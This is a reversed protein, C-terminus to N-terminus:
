TTSRLDEDPLMSVLDVFDNSMNNYHGAIGARDGRRSAFPAFMQISAFVDFNVFSPNDDSISFGSFLQTRRDRNGQEQWLIQYLYFAISKPKKTRTSEIGEGPITTWDLPDTSSFSKTSGGAGVYLYRRNWLTEDAPAAAHDSAKHATDKDTDTATTTTATKNDTHSDDDNSQAILASSGMMLLICFATLYPTRLYKQKMAVIIDQPATIGGGGFHPICPGKEIVM